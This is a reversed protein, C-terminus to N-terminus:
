GRGATSGAAAVRRTALWLYRLGLLWLAVWVGGILPVGWAPPRVSWADRDAYSNFVGMSDTGSRGMSGGGFGLSIFSAPRRTRGVDRVAAAIRVAEAAVRPDTTDIGASRMWKLIADPPALVSRGRADRTNFHLPAPSGAALTAATAPAPGTGPGAPPRAALVLAVPPPSSASPAGWGSAGCRATVGAYAQSAPGTLTYVRSFEFRPPLLSTLLATMPVAMVFVAITLMVASAVFGLGRRPTRPTVIGVARLDGGCEPCTLSGLGLVSYGCRGCVPGVVAPGAPSPGARRRAGVARLLGVSLALVGVVVLALAYELIGM